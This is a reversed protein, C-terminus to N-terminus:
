LTRHFDHPSLLELSRRINCACFLWVVYVVLVLLLELNTGGLFLHDLYFLVGTSILLFLVVPWKFSPRARLAVGCKPCEYHPHWFSGAQRYQRFPRLASCSPCSVEDRDSQWPMRM